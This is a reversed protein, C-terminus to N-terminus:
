TSPSPAGAVVIATVNQPNTEGRVDLNGTLRYSGELNLWAPFGPTDGPTIGGARVAAQNIEIVGDVGLAATAFGGLWLGLKLSRDM